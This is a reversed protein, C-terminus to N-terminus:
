LKETAFLKYKNLMKFKGFASTDVLNISQQVNVIVDM